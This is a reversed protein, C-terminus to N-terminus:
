RYGQPAASPGGHMYYPLSQFRALPVPKIYMTFCHFSMTLVIKYLEMMLVVTVIDFPYSAAEGGKAARYTTTLSTALAM